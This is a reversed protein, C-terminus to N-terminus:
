LVDNEKYNILLGLLQSHKHSAFWEMIPYHLMIGKKAWEYAVFFHLTTFPVASTM